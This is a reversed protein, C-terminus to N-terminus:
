VNTFFACVVSESPKLKKSLIVNKEVILEDIIVSPNEEFIKFDEAKFEDKFRSIGM